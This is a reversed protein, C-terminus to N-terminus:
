LEEVNDSSTEERFPDNIDPIFQRCRSHIELTQGGKIDIDIENFEYTRALNRM